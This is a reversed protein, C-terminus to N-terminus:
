EGEVFVSGPMESFFLAILCKLWLLSTNPHSWVQFEAECSRWKAEEKKWREISRSTQLEQSNTVYSQFKIHQDRNKQGLKKAGFDAWFKDLLPGGLGGVTPVYIYIYTCISYTCVYIINMLSCTHKCFFSFIYKRCSMHFLTLKIFISFFHHSFECSGEGLVWFLGIGGM